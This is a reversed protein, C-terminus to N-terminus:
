RRPDRGPNILEGYKRNAHAVDAISAILVFILFTLIM